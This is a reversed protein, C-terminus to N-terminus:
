ARKKKSLQGASQTPVSGVGQPTRHYSRCRTRRPDSRRSSSHCSVTRGSSSRTNIRMLLWSDPIYLGSISFYPSFLWCRMREIERNKFRTETVLKENPAETTLDTGFFEM